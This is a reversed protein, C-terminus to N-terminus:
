LFAFPSRKVATGPAALLLIEWRLTPLLCLCCLHRSLGKSRKCALMDGRSWEVM